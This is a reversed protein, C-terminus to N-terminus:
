SWLWDVVIFPVITAAISLVEYERQVTLPDRRRRIREDEADNRASVEKYFKCIHHIFVPGHASQCLPLEGRVMKRGIEIQRFMEDWHSEARAIRARHLCYDYCHGTCPVLFPALSVTEEILQEACSLAGRAEEFRASHYYFYALTSLYSSEVVTCITRPTKSAIADIETKCKELGLRAISLDRRFLDRAISALKNSIDRGYTGFAHHWDEAAPNLEPLFDWWERPEVLAVAALGSLQSNHTPM